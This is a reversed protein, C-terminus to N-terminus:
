GGFNVFINAMNTLAHLFLQPFLGAVFLAVEGLVLLIGERRKEEVHWGDADRGSVFVVLTRVGAIILGVSGLMSLASLVLSQTALGQWLALRVPFGALLPFGALSLLSLVVASAAIPYRFAIGEYDMLRYGPSGLETPGARSLVLIALAMLGLALGRPLLSAFFIGLLPLMGPQDGVLSLTLLTTGIEVLVAFGLMRGLNQEFAAGIGGAVAMFIGTWSLLVYLGESSRLWAYRDLFGLGLLTV